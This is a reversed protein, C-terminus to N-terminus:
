TSDMGGLANLLELMREERKLDTKRSGSAKAANAALWAAVAGTDVSLLACVM